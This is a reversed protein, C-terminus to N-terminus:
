MPHRPISHVELWQRAEDPTVPETAFTAFGTRIEENYIDFIAELDDETAARIEMARM